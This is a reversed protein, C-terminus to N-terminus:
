ECFFDNARDRPGGVAASITLGAYLLSARLQQRTTLPGNHVALIGPLVRQWSGGTKARRGATATPIHQRAWSLTLLSTM